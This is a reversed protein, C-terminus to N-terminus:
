ISGNNYGVLGGSYTVGTVNGSATGNSISGNNYGVLGGSYIVGTVSGTAYSESVFGSSGCNYSNRGVLGGVNSTGYVSGTAYSSIITGQNLGSLGGAAGAGGNIYSSLVNGTAFSSGILSTDWNGGVLGGAFYGNTIVNGSAHSNLIQGGYNNTGVLGGAEGYGNLTVNGSAWSSEIVGGKNGGVLGGTGYGGGSVNATAYTNTILGNNQGVLGGICHNALGSVSGTVYANNITGTDQNQGVLGGINTSGTGNISANILGINQITGANQGVLGVNTDTSDNITVNYFNHGLGDLTSGSSITGVPNVSQDKFNLDLGVVYNSSISGSGSGNTFGTWQGVQQIVKYNIGNFTFTNFTNDSASSQDTLNLRGSAGYDLTVAYEDSGLSPAPAGIALSSVTPDNFHITQNSAGLSPELSSINYVMAVGNITPNADLVVSSMVTPLGNNWNRSDFWDSSYTGTFTDTTFLTSNLTTVLDTSATSIIGNSDTGSL